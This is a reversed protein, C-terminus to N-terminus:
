LGVLFFRTFCVACVDRHHSPVFNSSFFCCSDKRRVQGIVWPSQQLRAPSERERWTEGHSVSRPRCRAEALTPYHVERHTPSVDCCTANVQTSVVQISFALTAESGRCFCEILCVGPALHYCRRFPRWETCNDGFNNLTLVMSIVAAWLSDRHAGQCWIVM